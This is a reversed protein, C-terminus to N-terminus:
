KMHCISFIRYHNSVVMANNSFSSRRRPTNAGSGSPTSLNLQGNKTLFAMPNMEFKRKYKIDRIEGIQSDEAQARKGGVKQQTQMNESDEFFNHIVSYKQPFVPLMKNMLLFPKLRGLIPIGDDETPDLRMSKHFFKGKRSKINSYQEIIKMVDRQVGPVLPYNKLIDAIISWSRGVTAVSWEILLEEFPTFGSNEKNPQQPVTPGMIPSVPKM